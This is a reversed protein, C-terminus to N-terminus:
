PKMGRKARKRPDSCDPAHVASAASAATPQHEQGMLSVSTKSTKPDWGQQCYVSVCYKLEPDEYHNSKFHVEYSSHHSDGIIEFYSFQYRGLAPAKAAERAAANLAARPCGLTMGNLDGLGDVPPAVGAAPVPEERPATASAAPNVPKARSAATDTPTATKTPAATGCASLVITTLVIFNRM